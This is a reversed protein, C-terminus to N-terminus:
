ENVKDRPWEEYLKGKKIEKDENESIERKLIEIEKLCRNYDHLVKVKSIFKIFNIPLFYIKLILSLIPIQYYLEESVKHTIDAHRYYLLFEILWDESYKLRKKLSYNFNSHTLINKKDM